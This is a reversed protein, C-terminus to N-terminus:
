NCLLNLFNEAANNAIILKDHNNIYKKRKEKKYNNEADIFSMAINAKWGQRYGEDSKLLSTLKKIATKIQNNKKM